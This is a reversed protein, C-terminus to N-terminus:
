RDHGLRIGAFQWRAHPPFFNRYSARLHDCPTVCSGGRLVWQGNMFKGNYEGLSGPLPKFGPYSVYPSGTWEWVDGYMQLLGEGATAAQPQLRGREQLNGRLPLGRAATEWEAETPLRAGAWRAFADAEFYSLHCVPADPDIPRVGALTFETALADDWYLPHQWAEAQVTAWGDSLWLGAERYGGDHVFARYEANTVLRNALAHPQLLTRHRPTENDFAFGDGDHGVEVVGEAGTVFRMAVAAETSPAPAKEAYAPRMPNCWLAHKIDTLLLEQHQQEHNIGLEVLSALEPDDSSGLWESVADDVYRRYDLVQALTPRSLLGRQPRAHMPGVSQYYSNLLVLWEPHRPRHGPRRGLVFHEFFWTTHALHWKGPSADPMSQVMLDEASLPASLAVTAQRVHLFRQQLEGARALSAQTM